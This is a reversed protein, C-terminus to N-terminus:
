QKRLKPNVVEDMARGVLYFATCFLMLALAPPLIAHWQGDITFWRFTLQGIWIMSGWSLQVYTRSFFSLLSETLVAGAVTFVANVIALPMLGPLIHKRLIHWNGGGSIRAAEIFPRVKFTLTHSKVIMAQGGLGTLVGYSLAVVPWRMRVLLGFILLVVPAPMLIFVDAIGMLITDANGGFYGAAGGVLTSLTVAVLAAVIGVGFSVRSGYLLQSLVDRGFSDTGFPHEWSPKTPHPALEADYGIFPDYRSRKWVTNMMIPHSISMLGFFFIILLGAMGFPYQRFLVWNTSIQQQQARSRQKLRRFSSKQQNEDCSPTKPTTTKV